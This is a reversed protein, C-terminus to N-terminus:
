LICLVTNITFAVRFGTVTCYDEGQINFANLAQSIAFASLYYTLVATSISFYIETAM